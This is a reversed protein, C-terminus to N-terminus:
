SASPKSSQLASTLREWLQDLSIPLVSTEAIVPMFNTDSKWRPVIHIHLHDPVGAGAAQHINLGINFGDPHLTRRLLDQGLVTTEMLDAREAPSLEALDQVEQLPLVLLHGANYPYRNLMLCCHASRHIILAERDNGSTLLAHFPNRTGPLKPVELYEMRWYSHLHEM